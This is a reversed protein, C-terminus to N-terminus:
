RPAGIRVAYMIGLDRDLDAKVTWVVFGNDRLTSSLIQHGRDHWEIMLASIDQITGSRALDTVIEYEAGECDMKVIVTEIQSKALIDHFADSARRVSITEKRHDTASRVFQPPACIGVSGKWTPSYDVLVERDSDALGYNLLTIKDALHRNMEIHQKAREYTPLLPEFGIVRTVWPQSAFYLSATGINVGIDVMNVPGTAGMSYIGKAFVEYLIFAEETTSIILTIGLVEVQLAASGHTSWEANSATAVSALHKWSKALLAANDATIKVASSGLCMAPGDPKVLSFPVDSDRFVKAIERNGLIKIWTLWKVLKIPGRIAGSM